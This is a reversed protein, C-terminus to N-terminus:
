TTVAKPKVRNWARKPNSKMKIAIRACAEEGLYTSLDGEQVHALTTLAHQPEIAKAKADAEERNMGDVALVHRAVGLTANYIYTKM